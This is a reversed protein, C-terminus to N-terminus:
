DLFKVGELNKFDNDKTLLLLGHFRASAYIICDILGIKSNKKRLENYIKGSEILVDENIELVTSLNTILQVFESVEKNNKFCWVSIEAITLSCTYAQENNELSLKIIRGKETAQFYEIWASTDLLM